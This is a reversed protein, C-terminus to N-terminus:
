EGRGAEREAARVLQAMYGKVKRAGDKEGALENVKGEIGAGEQFVKLNYAADGASMARLDSPWQGFAEAIQYM